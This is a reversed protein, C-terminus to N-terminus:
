HRKRGKTPKGSPKARAPAEPPGLHQRALRLNSEVRDREHVPLADGGLLAECAAASEAWHGTWSSCVAFEDLRRWRYVEEDIWLEDDSLPITLAQAAFMRGLAWRQEQRCFRALAALPEARGPRAEWATLYAALVTHFDAARRETCRAVEFLSDYIEEDFGGGREARRRFAAEALDAQESDRYSRALYYQYRTNDPEVLLAAALVRADRAYKEVTSLGQSRGGDYFGVVEPETLRVTSEEGPAEPYEHLVGLYGWALRNAFLTKRWYIVNGTRHRLQVSDATLDPWDFGEPVDFTEDADIMLTYATHPRAAALAQSRNTGFDVWPQELLLGPIDALLERVLEQTGDTSGTDVVVWHHLYPRVSTLCRGIVHAEDKVIM